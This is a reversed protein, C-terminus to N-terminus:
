CLTCGHESYILDFRLYCSLMLSMAVKWNIMESLLHVGFSWVEILQLDYVYCNLM